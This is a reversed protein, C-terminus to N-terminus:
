LIHDHHVLHLAILESLEVEVLRLCDDDIHKPNPQPREDAVVDAFGVEVVRVEVLGVLDHILQYSAIDLLGYLIILAFIEVM